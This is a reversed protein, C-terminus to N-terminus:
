VRCFGRSVSAELEEGAAQPADALDTGVLSRPLEKLPGQDGSELISNVVPMITQTVTSVASTPLNPPLPLLYSLYRLLASPPIAKLANAEGSNQLSIKTGLTVRYGLPSVVYTAGASRMLGRDACGCAWQSAAGAAFAFAPGLGQARSGKSPLPAPDALM